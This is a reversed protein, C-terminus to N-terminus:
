VHAHQLSIRSQICHQEEALWNLMRSKIASQTTNLALDQQPLHKLARRCWSLCAKKEYLTGYANLRGRLESTCYAFYEPSNFNLEFLLYHIQRHVNGQQMRENHALQWLLNRYYLVLRFTLAEKRTLFPNFIIDPLEEKLGQGTLRIKTEVIKRKLQRGALQGYHQPLLYDVALFPSFYQELNQLVEELINEVEMYFGILQVDSKRIYHHLLELWLTMQFQFNQVTQLKHDYASEERALNQLQVMIIQKRSSIEALYAPIHQRSLHLADPSLQELIIQQLTRM